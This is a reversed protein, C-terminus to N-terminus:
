VVPGAGDVKSPFQFNFGQCPESDSFVSFSRCIISKQGSDTSSELGGSMPLSSTGRNRAKKQAEDAFLEPTKRVRTRYNNM